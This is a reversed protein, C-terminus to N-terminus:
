VAAFLSTKGRAPPVDAGCLDGTAQAFNRQPWRAPDSSASTVEVRDLDGNFRAELTM